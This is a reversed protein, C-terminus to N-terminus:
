LCQVFRCGVGASRPQRRLAPLKGITKPRSSRSRLSFVLVAVMTQFMSHSNWLLSDRNNKACTKSSLKIEPQKVSSKHWCLCRYKMCESLVIRAPDSSNLYIWIMESWSAQSQAAHHWASLLRSESDRLLVCYSSLFVVLFGGFLAAFFWFFM